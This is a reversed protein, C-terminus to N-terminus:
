MPPDFDIWVPLNEHHFDRSGAPTGFYYVEQRSVSVLDGVVEPFLQGLWPGCAFVARDASITAGDSLKIRVVGGAALQDRDVTM